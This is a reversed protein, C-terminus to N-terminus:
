ARGLSALKKAEEAAMAKARKDLKAQTKLGMVGGGWKRLLDTNDNYKEKALDQLQANVGSAGNGALVANTDFLDTFHTDLEALGLAVLKVGHAFTEVRM